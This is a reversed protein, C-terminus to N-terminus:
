GTASILGPAELKARIQEAQPAGVETYRILAERWHRRARSQTGSAAYVGALGEHARAQEYKEGARSALSLAAAHQDRADALRGTALLVEGLGNRALAERAVDGVRRSLALAQRLNDAAQEHREQRLEAIGLSALTDAESTRDGFQRWFVLVEALKSAAQRYNGRNLEVEGLNTLARAEGGKDGAARSLELSRQLYDAAQSHRGQRIAAFGLNGLARAEGVRDGLSSYLASSQHFFDVAQEPRGQLLEALGLNALARAEGAQDGSQRLLPLAREHYAVSSQYRGQRLEVGGLNLLAAAEAAKDGTARAAGLANDYVLIADAFQASTDLYRHLLAAMAIAHGPWGHDAAFVAVAVLSAREADLWAVAEAESGFAPPQAKSPTIKPRRHGEAPFALDMALACAYLYFDLLRTLADHRAQGTETETEGALEVAYSRLLDHMDYRGGEARQILFGSALAELLRGAQGPMVDALAALVFRDLSLGPHLGALRFARASAPELREYSWSLAARVDSAQDGDDAFVDLSQQEDVDAAIAELPLDPMMSARAAIVCLALPLRACSKILRAVAKPEAALREEGLRHRLLQRAEAGTLVDLVMLRAAERVALGTLQNRSTVVVRCTAAGPLLPRVQAADRANDLVVLMRRGALLSRYLGLQGEQTAPLASAAVGLGDLFVRVAEGVTLPTGSPDFGRLNVYLQGDPFEAAVQQAWQVALATKGVGATGGIASIVATGGPDDLLESLASLEDQRGTFGPVAIPLQRPVVRGSAPRWGASGGPGRDGLAPTSLPDGGEAVVAPTSLPDGGEALVAPTSLPDGGKSGVGRAVRRGALAIFDARATGALELADALRYLSDRYPWRTRGRELDSITRISLGSWRALEQQSLGASRRCARLRSGFDEGDDGM